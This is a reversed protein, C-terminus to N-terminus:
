MPPLVAGARKLPPKFPSPQPSQFPGRRAKKKLPPPSGYDEEFDSDEELAELDDEDMVDEDPDFDPDELDEALGALVDVVFSRTTPRKQVVSLIRDVVQRVPRMGSDFMPLVDDNTLDIPNQSTMPEESLSFSWGLM